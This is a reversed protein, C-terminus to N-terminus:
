RRGRVVVSLVRFHGQVYREAWPTFFAFTESQLM